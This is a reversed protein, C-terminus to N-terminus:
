QLLRKGCAVCGALKWAQWVVQVRWSDAQGVEHDIQKGCKTCKLQSSKSESM